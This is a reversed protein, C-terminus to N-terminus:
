REHSAEDDVVAEEAEEAELELEAEAIGEDLHVLDGIGDRGGRRDNWLTFAVLVVSVAMLPWRYDAIFHRVPGLLDEFAASFARILVLRGVTGVVNAIVFGPVAM